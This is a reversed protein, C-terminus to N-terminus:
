GLRPTLDHALAVILDIVRQSDNVEADVELDAQAYLPARRAWLADLTGAPDPVSLLPRPVRSRGLRRLAETPSIRLHVLRGPPRLLEVVGSNTIWGGGPAMVMPSVAAFDKTVEVEMKRFAPEGLESFIRSVSIGARREIEEDFDLLPRRLLKSLARGITSKGSGPLGVLILHGDFQKGGQPSV